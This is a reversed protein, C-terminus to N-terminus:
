FVKSIKSVNFTLLLDTFKFLLLLMREAIKTTKCSM